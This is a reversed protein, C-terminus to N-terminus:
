TYLLIPITAIIINAFVDREVLIRDVCYWGGMAM